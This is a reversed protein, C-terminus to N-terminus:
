EGWVEASRKSKGAEIEGYSKDSELMNHKDLKTEQSEEGM